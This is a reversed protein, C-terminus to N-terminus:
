RLVSRSVPPWGPLDAERGELVDDGSVGATPSVEVRIRRQRRPLPVSVMVSRGLGLARVWAGLYLRAAMKFRGRLWPNPLAAVVAHRRAGATVALGAVTEPTMRDRGPPRVWVVGRWVIRGPERRTYWHEATVAQCSELASSSEVPVYQGQDPVENGRPLGLGEPLPIAPDQREACRRVMQCADM